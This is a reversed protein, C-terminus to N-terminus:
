RGRTTSRSAKVSEPNIATTRDGLGEHGANESQIEERKTATREATEKVTKVLAEPDFSRAPYCYYGALPNISHVEQETIQFGTDQTYIIVPIHADKAEWLTDSGARGLNFGIAPRSSSVVVANAREDAPLERYMDLGSANGTVTRVEYGAAKLAPAIHNEVRMPRDDWVIAIPKKEEAM